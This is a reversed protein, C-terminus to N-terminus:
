LQARGRCWTSPLHHTGPRSPNLGLLATVYCGTYLIGLSPHWLMEGSGGSASSSDGGSGVEGSFPHLGRSDALVFELGAEPSQAKYTHARGHGGMHSNM